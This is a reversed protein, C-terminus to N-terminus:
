GERRGGVSSQSLCRGRSFRCGTLKKGLDKERYMSCISGSKAKFAIHIGFAKDDEIPQQDQTLGSVWFYRRNHESGFAVVEPAVRLQETIGLPALAANLFAVEANLLSAPCRLLIHDLSM